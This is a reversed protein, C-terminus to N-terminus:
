TIADVVSATQGFDAEVAVTPRSRRAIAARVAQVEAVIAFDMHPIAVIARVALRDTTEM